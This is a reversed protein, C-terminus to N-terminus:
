HLVVRCLRMCLLSGKRYVDYEIFCLGAYGCVLCLVREILMISLSVFCVFVTVVFYFQIVNLLVFEILCTLIHM